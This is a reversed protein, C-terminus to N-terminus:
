LANVCERFVEGRHQYNRFMDFSACAPALLVTDGAVASAHATSVADRMDTADVADCHAEISARITARAEGILVARKVRAVQPVLSAFDGDKDRGGLIVIVPGDISMLSKITADVNTAKSDNVYVVGDLTRVLEMRHPLPRYSRLAERITQDTVGFPIVAAISALANELNHVGIPKFDSRDAVVSRGGDWARVISPGEVFVGRDLTRRSSFPIAKGSHRTAIARATEDESNFVFWSDATAGNLIRAKSAAYKEFSHDYRDLHDPTVNLLVAVEAHFEDITDLQFSSLELVLTGPDRERVVDSLPTGVNGAVVVDVGAALLIAGIVGVTTSKGNTGTVGIVRARTEHWAAEIEGVIRVDASRAAQMVRHGDPVGPSVVVCDVSRAVGVAEEPAVSQIGGAFERAIDSEAFSRLVAPDDDCVRVDKGRSALLGSVAVGSRAMGVVLFTESQSFSKM